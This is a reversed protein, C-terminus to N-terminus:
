NNIFKVRNFSIRNQLIRKTTIYESKRKTIYVGLLKLEKM